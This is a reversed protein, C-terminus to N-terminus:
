REEIVIQAIVQASSHSIAVWLFQNEYGKVQIEPAGSANPLIEIDQFSLRGIGTGAAKSFAEKAAFRGAAFETQRKGKLQKYKEQEKKTLIRQIFRPNRMISQNIREIELIDVGIGKIM